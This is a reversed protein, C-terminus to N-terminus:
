PQEQTALYTSTEGALQAWLRREPESVCGPCDPDPHHWAQVGPWREPAPSKCTERHEAISMRRAHDRFRELETSM